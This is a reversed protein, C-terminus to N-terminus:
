PYLVLSLSLFHIFQETYRVCDVSWQQYAKALQSEQFTQKRVWTNRPHEFWQIGM